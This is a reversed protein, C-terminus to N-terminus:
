GLTDPVEIDHESLADKLITRRREYDTRLLQGVVCNPRLSNTTPHLKNPQSGAPIPRVRVPSLQLRSRSRFIIDAPSSRSGRSDVSNHASESRPQQRLSMTAGTRATPSPVKPNQLSNRSNNGSGSLQPAPEVVIWHEQQASSTLNDPTSATIASFIRRPPCRCLEAKVPTANTEQEPSTSDHMAIM